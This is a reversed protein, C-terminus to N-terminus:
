KKADKSSAAIHRMLTDMMERSADNINKAFRMSNTFPSNRKSSIHFTVQTGHRATGHRAMGHTPSHRHTPSHTHTHKRPTCNHRCAHTPAHRKGM